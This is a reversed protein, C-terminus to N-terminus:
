YFMNSVLDLQLQATALNQIQQINNSGYLLSALPDPKKTIQPARPKPMEKHTRKDEKIEECDTSEDILIVEQEPNPKRKKVISLEPEDDVIIIGNSENDDDEIIEIM